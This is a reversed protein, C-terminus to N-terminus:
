ILIAYAATMKCFVLVLFYIQHKTVKIDKGKKTDDKTSLAHHLTM